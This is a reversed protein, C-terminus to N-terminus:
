NGDPLNIEVNSRYDGLLHEAFFYWMMQEYYDRKSGYGHRSGPIPMYDFRKGAKMLENALRLSNAPNVNNDRTGHTILLHGKLNKAISPNTKVKADWTTETYENGDEDKKKKDVRKVGNHTEGWWKNYVNNDHNGASSAAAHYFDPYMLMAATSMFGGGSHGFIGVNDLDIFSHRDALIELSRKDDALAYDRLNEYGYTHYYKDRMPSGGRHGMSVVIFGLQAMATNYGSTASFDNGFSEVQPGPYVYSIVPYKRTSDFDFPKFMVGYLDTIGDDAKMTFREPMKWGTEYLLSLDASELDMIINGNSDKLVSRPAMDTASYNDVYYKSSESMNMSHNAPELSVPKFGSGDLNAKYMLAYYPDIGQERGRGEFYVKRGVTDVQAIRGTVYYGGNTVKNKLAGTNGDYLYLQGWGNRESWWILEEGENLISLQVSGSYFYPYNADTFLEKVEGTATNISVVDLSDSTRNMRTAFMRESTKGPLYTSVTQDTYKDLDVDIRKKSPVEFISLYEQPVDQDGPMAYKYIEVELRTSLDDIVFLEKVKRADSRNVYFKSEDEFWRVSARFRKDKTTDGRDAGYSFWREGDDALLIETSDADNAMMMYLDYNKAFTIYTSDPSYRAWNNRKDAKETSDGKTIRKSNIDFHYDVSDVMFTFQKNDDELKWAKLDLNRHDWPKSTLESLQAAFDLNDFLMTKSKKAPDVMYFKKGETTTYTYWFKDSDKLWGPNVRTTKLMKRINTSKFKEAAKFNAKYEQALGPLSFLVLIALQITKRMTLNIQYRLKSGSDSKQLRNRGYVINSPYVSIFFAGVEM